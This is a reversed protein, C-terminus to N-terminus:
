ERLVTALYDAFARASPKAARGAAFVAHLEFPEMQWDGLVQVLTGSALELRCEGLCVLAIGLSAVAAATAGQNASTTLRGQVRVTTTRGNRQFTCSDLGIGPPGVIVQHNALSEPTDPSGARALYAPSAVLLRPCTGLRRATATSDALAGFRLAVDIGETVLDENRDNLSLDIRLAPHLQMFAPLWPIVERLGFGLPLSVRLTGRLEGTGRAAHDAEELAALIPEIRALYDSGAETLTLGRTTRTMLAVGVQRELESAIRSASPQSLGLERGARSFSGTRAIRAFLQLALLRDGM